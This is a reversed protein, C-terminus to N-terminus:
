VHIEADPVIERIEDPWKATLSPPVMLCAFYGKKGKLQHYGEAISTMVSSKGTSMEGQIIVAKQELLRKSVATAVHSQVPFLTRPFSEFHKLTEDVMPNHTPQVEKSLKEVMADSYGLMYDTLSDVTELE